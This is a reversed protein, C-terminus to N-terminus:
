ARELRQILQRGIYETYAPPIAERLEDWTMWDIGMAQQAEALALRPSDGYVAAAEVPRLAPPPASLAVNSEFLRPRYVGLGFQGGHLRLPRRMHRAAGTVNEIVYSRGGIRERVEAILRPRTSGTWAMYGQCPPSAHIVDFGDLDFDLADGQVFAFPYHPQPEIDVGLVEFGARRYGTAAGGAGCFLDLLRPPPAASTV